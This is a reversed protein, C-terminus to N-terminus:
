TGNKPTKPIVQGPISGQDRPGNAFVRSMLGIIIIRLLHNFLEIQGVSLVRVPEVLVPQNPQNPKLCILRQLNNLVLDMKICITLEIEFM